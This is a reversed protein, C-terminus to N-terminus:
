KMLCTHLGQGINDRTPTEHGGLKTGDAFFTARQSRDPRLISTSNSTFNFDFQVYFQPRIPRLISTSRSTFNLNIQVQLQPRDPPSISTSRSRFNLDDDDRAPIPRCLVMGYRVTGDLVKNKTLFKSLFADLLCRCFFPLGNSPPPSM